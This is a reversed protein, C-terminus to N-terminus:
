TIQPERKIVPKAWKGYKIWLFSTIGGVVNSVALATWVGFSGMGFNYSLLYGLTIRLVWLRIMGLATPVKTHGSGRGTSMASMFLGFFPLTLLMMQLFLETEDLIAPSDVFVSAVARRFPYMISASILVLVFILLAAKFAVEKARERKDAGLSQGVMIATAGGLGWLAADVIDNVVFGISFATSAALGWMNVLRLQMLFAFGNTSYLVLIPLSVSVVLRIWEANMDKTFKAKLEPYNKRLIYTQGIISIIKGMVDTLSAGVVGLRPFPGIGLVLFPDLLVNIGVAVVNIIAPRKTDGVSQLLTAY